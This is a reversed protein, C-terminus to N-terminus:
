QDEGSPVRGSLRDFAAQKDEAMMRDVDSLMAHYKDEYQDKRCIGTEILFDMMTLLHATFSANYDSQRLGKPVRDDADPNVAAIAAPTGPGCAQLLERADREFVYCCMIHNNPLMVSAILCPYEQPGKGWQALQGVAGLRQAHDRRYNDWDVASQLLAFSSAV